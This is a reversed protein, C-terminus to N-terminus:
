DQDRSPATIEEQFSLRAHIIARRVPAPITDSATLKFGSLLVSALGIFTDTYTNLYPHDREHEQPGWYPESNRSNSYRIWGPRFTASPSWIDSFNGLWQFQIYRNSDFSIFKGIGFHAINEEGELPIAFLDDKILEKKQSWPLALDIDPSTSPAEESWPSYPWLTDVHINELPLQSRVDLLNYTNESTRKTVVHPGTWRNVWKGPAKRYEDTISHRDLHYKRPLQPQWYLVFDNAIFTHTKPPSSRDQLLRRQAETRSILHRVRDFASRLWKNMYTFYHVGDEFSASPLIGFLVDTPLTPKFGRHMEFPSYGTTRNVAIRYAFTTCSLYEHWSNGYAAGMMTMSSNIWRIYREAPSNGQKHMPSSEIKHVGWTDCLHRLGANIFESGRDTLIFEPFSLDTLINRFIALAVEEATNSKLAVTIPWRTFVDVCVLIYLHGASSARLPGVLDMSLVQGPRIATIPKQVGAGLPRPTKRCACALCARTWRGVDRKMGSWWYRRSMSLFTKDRGQHASLPSGHFQRLIFAKLSDPVVLQLAPDSTSSRWKRSSLKRRKLNPEDVAHAPDPTPKFCRHWLLGLADVHFHNRVQPSQDKMKQFYRKCAEDAMQLKLFEKPSWATKDEPPFFALVPVSAPATAAPVSDPSAPVSRDGVQAPCVAASIVLPPLPPLPTSSLETPSCYPCSSKLCLRSLTDANANNKGKRHIVTYDFATMQLVWGMVRSNTQSKQLIFKVAESDTVIQFPKAFPQALYMRFLHTAWVVALFELEFTHYRSETDTVSRSAYQIVHERGDRRQTLVAGLGHGCADTHLEFPASWDPHSLLPYSSLAARLRAIAQLEQSSWERNAPFSVDRALLRSLPSTVAAFGKIFKRYYSALGLFSRLNDKSTIRMNWIAKTKDPDPRIGASGVIHGVFRFEQVFFKCKKPNCKMGFDELATLVANLNALHDEYSTGWITIDDIFACCVNWRLSGLILDIARSFLASGLKVGQPLFEYEWVENTPGLFATLQKSEEDLPVSWFANTLDISSYFGKGHFLSLAEDVRPIQYGIPKMAKNLQTYAVVFRMGKGPGKPVLLLMSTYPSNSPRIIGAKYKENIIRTAEKRAEPNQPIIRTSWNPPHSLDFHVKPLQKRPPTENRDRPTWLRPKSLIMEQVRRQQDVTSCGQPGISVESLPPITLQRRLEAAPLRWADPQLPPLPFSIPHFEENPTSPTSSCATYETSNIIPEPLSDNSFSRYNVRNRVNADRVPMTIDPRRPPTRLPREAIGNLLTAECPEMQDNRVVDRALPASDLSCGAFPDERCCTSPSLSCGAFPDERCCASPMPHAVDEERPDASSAARSHSDDERPAASPIIVPVEAHPHHRHSSNPSCPTTKLSASSASGASTSPNLDPFNGDFCDWADPNDRHFLALEAGRAITTPLRSLNAVAIYIHSEAKASATLAIGKAPLIEYRCRPSPTVTGWQSRAMSIARRSRHPIKVPLVAHEGPGLSLTTSSYMPLAAFVTLGETRSFKVTSRRPTSTSNPDRVSMVSSTFDLIAGNDKLFDAGLIVDIDSTIADFLWLRQIYTYSSLNIRVFALGSPSQLSGNAM